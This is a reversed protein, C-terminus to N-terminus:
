ELILVQCGFNKDAYFGSDICSFNSATLSSYMPYDIWPQGRISNNKILSHDDTIRYVEEPGSNQKSDEELFIYDVNFKNEPEISSSNNQEGFMKTKTKTKEQASGDVSYKISSKTYDTHEKRVIIEPISSPTTETFSSNLMEYKQTTYISLDKKKVPQRTQLKTQLKPNKAPKANFKNKYNMGRFDTILAENSNTDVSYDKKSPDSNLLHNIPSHTSTPARTSYYIRPSFTIQKSESFKQIYKETLDSNKQFTIPTWGDRSDVAVNKEGKSRFQRVNKDKGSKLGVTEDRNNSFISKDTPWRHDKATLPEYNISPMSNLPRKLYSEKNIHMSSALSLDQSPNMYTQSVDIQMNPPTISAKLNNLVPKIMKGNSAFSPVKSEFENSSDENLLKPPFQNQQEYSFTPPIHYRTPISYDEQPELNPVNVHSNFDQNYKAFENIIAQSHIADFQSNKLVKYNRRGWSFPFNLSPLFHCLLSRGIQNMHLAKSCFESLRGNPTDM